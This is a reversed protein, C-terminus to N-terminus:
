NPIPVASLMRGKTAKLLKSLRQVLKLADVNNPNRQLVLRGAALAKPQDNLKEFAQMRRYLAKENTGDLETAKECSELAAAFQHLKLQCMARNSYLISIQSENIGKVMAKNYWEIAESFKSTKYCNNGKLKNAEYCM